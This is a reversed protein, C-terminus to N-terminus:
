NTFHPIREAKTEGNLTYQLLYIGQELSTADIQFTMGNREFTPIEILRGSQDYVAFEMDIDAETISEDLSSVEVTILNSGVGKDVQVTFNDSGVTRFVTTGVDRKKWFFGGPDNYVVAEFYNTSTIGTSADYETNISTTSHVFDSNFLNVEEFVGTTLNGKFDYERLLVDRESGDPIPGYSHCSYEQAWAIHVFNRDYAVVPRPYDMGCLNLSNNVHKFNIVNGIGGFFLGYVDYTGGQDDQAVATYYDAPGFNNGRNSQIRPWEWQAGIPNITIPASTPVLAPMAGTIAGYNFTQTRWTGSPDIWTLVFNQNDDLLAVDPQTGGSVGIPIGVNGVVNYAVVWVDVGDDWTVIGNGLSNMDINPNFGNSVYSQAALNYTPALTALTYDDVFINGGMEYAVSVVDANSYYAVDPNRGHQMDMDLLAGSAPDLWQIIYNGSPDDNVVASWKYHPAIAVGTQQVTGWIPTDPHIADQVTQSMSVGSAAVFLAALLFNRKKMM